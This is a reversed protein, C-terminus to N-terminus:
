EFVSCYVQFYSFITPHQGKNGTDVVPTLTAQLSCSCFAMCEAKIVQVRYPQGLVILELQKKKREKKTLNVLGTQSELVSVRLKLIINSSRHHIYKHINIHFKPNLTLTSHLRSCLMLLCIRFGKKRERVNEYKSFIWLGQSKFVRTLVLVNMVLELWFICSGQEMWVCSQVPCVGVSTIRPFTLLSHQVGPLESAIVKNYSHMKEDLQLIFIKDKEDIYLQELWFGHAM